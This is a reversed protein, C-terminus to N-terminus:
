VDSELSAQLQAERLSRVNAAKAKLRKRDKLLYCTESWTAKPQGGPVLRAKVVAPASFSGFPTPGLMWFVSEELLENGGLGLALTTNHTVLGLGVGWPVGSAIGHLIYRRRVEAVRRVEAELGM